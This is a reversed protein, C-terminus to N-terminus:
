TDHQLEQFCQEVSSRLISWITPFVEAVLELRGLVQSLQVGNERWSRGRHSLNHLVPLLRDLANAYRAEPTQSATFEEWLARLRQADANALPALLGELAVRKRVEADARESAYVFTDGCAIEPVDHMLMLLAAHRADVVFACEGELLLAALACHWSQEASNEPRSMGSPYSRREVAKLGDLTLLFDLLGQPSM